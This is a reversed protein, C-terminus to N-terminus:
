GKFRLFWVAWGLGFGVLPILVMGPTFSFMPAILTLSLLHVTFGINQSVLPTFLIAALAVPLAYLSLTSYSLM